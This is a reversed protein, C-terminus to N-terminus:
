YGLLSADDSVDGDNNRREIVGLQELNTKRESDLKKNAGGESLYVQRDVWERLPAPLDTDKCYKEGNLAECLEKYKRRWHWKEYSLPFKLVRLRRWRVEELANAIRYGTLIERYLQRQKAVWDSFLPEATWNVPVGSHGHTSHFEQLRQYYENWSADSESRSSNQDYVEWNAEDEAQKRREQREGGVGGTSSGGKDSKALIKEDDATTQSGPTLEQYNLVNNRNRVSRRNNNNNNGSSNSPAAPKTKGGPTKESDTIRRKKKPATKKVIGSSAKKKAAAPARKKYARKTTTAAKSKKARAKTPIAKYTAKSKTTASEGHTSKM